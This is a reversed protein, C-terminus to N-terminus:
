RVWDDFIRSVRAQIDFPELPNLRFERLRKHSQVLAKFSSLCCTLTM